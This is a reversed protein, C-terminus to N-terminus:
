HGVKRGQIVQSYLHRTDTQNTLAHTIFKYFSSQFGAILLFEKKLYFTEM